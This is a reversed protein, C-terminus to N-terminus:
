LFPRPPGGGSHVSRPSGLRVPTSFTSDSGACRLCGSSTRFPLRVGFGGSLHSNITALDYPAVKDHQLSSPPQPPSPMFQPPQWSRHNKVVPHARRTKGIWSFQIGSGVYSFESGSVLLGMPGDTIGGNPRRRTMVFWLVCINSCAMTSPDITGAGILGHEGKGHVAGKEKKKTHFV